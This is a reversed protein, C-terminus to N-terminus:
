KGVCFTSFIRGLIDDTLVEGTLENLERLADYIDLLVMEHPLGNELATCAKNLAEIGKSITDAQRATSLVGNSLEMVECNVRQRIANRLDEMGSGTLASIMVANTTTTPQCNNLDCKNLVVIHTTASFRALIDNDESDLPSSADLVILVVDAESAEEMTKQIGIREVTDTAQRIGATDSFRLPIGDMSITESLVDRTTGPIETVIARDLGVFQNFLSSKGVNPKGTITIRVGHFLARGVAYTSQIEALRCRVRDVEVAIDHSNPVSIDDEAFDIGAELRAIIDVLKDKAPTLRNSLAGGMQLMASRAQFATQADVFSRVAEAQLLDMKGNLVARMTFEGPTALRAGAACVTVVIRQLTLPNGHASLELMDEGTYSHPSKFLTALVEDIPIGEEDLCQGKSVRRSVL